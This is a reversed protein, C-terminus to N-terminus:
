ILARQQTSLRHRGDPLVTANRLWAIIQPRRMFGSDGNFFVLKTECAPYFCRLPAPYGAHLRVDIDCMRPPSATSFCSSGLAVISAQSYTPTHYDVTLPGALTLNTSDRIIVGAGLSFRLDVGAALITLNSASSINLTASNFDYSGPAVTVSSKAHNILAQLAQAASSPPTWAATIAALGM